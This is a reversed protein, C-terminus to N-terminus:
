PAGGPGDYVRYLLLDSEYKQTGASNRVWMQGSYDGAAVMDTDSWNYVVKGDTGDTLFGITGGGLPGTVAPIAEINMQFTWGGTSLDVAVEDFDTYEHEFPPPIAGEAFAGLEQKTPTNAM